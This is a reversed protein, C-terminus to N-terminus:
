VELIKRFIWDYGPDAKEIIIIKGKIFNFDKIKTNELDLIQACAKKSSIFNPKASFSQVISLDKQDFVISPLSIYNFLDSEIKYGTINLNWFERIAEKSFSTSSGLLCEVSLNSLDDRSFKFESGIDALIEM